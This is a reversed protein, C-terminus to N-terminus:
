NLRPDGPLHKIGLASLLSSGSIEKVLAEWIDEPDRFVREVSAAITGWAGATLESELQGAGWGAYGVFFKASGEAGGVLQALKDRDATFYVGPLAEIDVLEADRHLAMLPGQIPGGVRLTECSACPETSLQSWVDGVPTQSLRDLALGFAGAENHKVLLVVGHFFNPDRLKESAVLLQGALFSM